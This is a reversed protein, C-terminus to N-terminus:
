TVDTSPRNIAPIEITLVGTKQTPLTVLRFGSIPNCATRTGNRLIQQGGFELCPCVGTSDSGGPKNESGYSFDGPLPRPRRWRHPGTSPLAYRVGSYYRCLQKKTSKNHITRGRVFGKSGLQLVDENKASKM